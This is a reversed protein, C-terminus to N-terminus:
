MEGWLLAYFMKLAVLFLVAAFLRALMVRSLRHALRVGLPAMILATPLIAGVAAYNVFGISYNPLDQVFRGIMMYGLMGIAAVVVGLAVATGIARHIPVHAKTMLPITLTAGGIGVLASAWGIVVVLSQQFKISLPVASKVAETAGRTMYIALCFTLLAFVAYLLRSPIFSASLAGLVVGAILFASWNKLITKDFAGRQYHGYASLASTVMMVALTTGVALHTTHLGQYGMIELAYVLAPVFIFGGGVGLLGSLFGGVAGTALLFLILSPDLVMALVKTWRSAAACM